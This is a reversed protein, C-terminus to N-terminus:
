QDYSQLYIRNTFKILSYHKQRSLLHDHYEQDKSSLKRDEYSIRIYYATFLHPLAYPIQLENIVLM